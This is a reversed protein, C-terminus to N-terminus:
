IQTHMCAVHMCAVHVCVCQGQLCVVLLSCSMTPRAQALAAYTRLQTNLQFYHIYCPITIIFLSTTYMYLSHLYIYTCTLRPPTIYMVHSVHRSYAFQGHPLRYLSMIPLVVSILMEEVQTLGQSSICPPSYISVVCCPIYIYVTIVM